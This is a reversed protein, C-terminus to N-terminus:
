IPGNWGQGNPGNTAPNIGIGPLVTLRQRGTRERRSEQVEPVASKLDRGFTFKDLPRNIGSSLAWAKYCLYLEGSHVSAKPSVICCEDVFAKIHSSLGVLEQALELGSPPATFRGAHRLSLWGEIAWRLISQREALLEAKLNHNEHGLFSKKFRLILLRSALAGSADSLKPLENSIIMMRTRLRTSFPAKHKINISQSDEGSISLLRETIQAQDTRESLRADGFVALTKGLLEQLGFDRSLSTLTPACCNSEGILSQLVNAITGKGSRPPGILMLIKQQSTDGTLCYGFWQQLLEISEKDDGFLQKLFELWRKPRPADPDFEYDIANSGFFAPTSPIRYTNNTALLNPLYLLDSPTAFVDETLWETRITKDVGDIWSPMNVDSSLSCQAQVNM